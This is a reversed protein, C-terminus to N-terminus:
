GKKLFVLFFVIILKGLLIKDHLWLYVFMKKNQMLYSCIFEHLLKMKYDIGVYKFYSGIKQLAIYQLLFDQYQGIYKGSEFLRKVSFVFDLSKEARIKKDASNMQSGERVLYYYLIDNITAICHSNAVMEMKLLVDEGIPINEFHVNNLVSRKILIGWVSFRYFLNEWYESSLCVSEKFYIDECNQTVPNILRYGCEVMDVNKGQVQMWLRELARVDLYDDSDLFFVYEGKSKEFGAKRATNVGSNLQEIFVIRPDKKQFENIIMKSSDTSGDDVVVIEIAEYTQNICSLLCREIYLAVNYVPIIISICKKEKDIYSDM